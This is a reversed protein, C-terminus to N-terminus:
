CGCFFGGARVPPKQHGPILSSNGKPDVPLPRYRAPLAQKNMGAQRM